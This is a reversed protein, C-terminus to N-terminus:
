QSCPWIHEDFRFPGSTDHVKETEKQGKKTRGEIKGKRKWDFGMFIEMQYTQAFSCFCFFEIRTWFNSESSFNDFCLKSKEEFSRLFKCLNVNENWNLKSKRALIAARCFSFIHIKASFIWFKVKFFKAFFHLFEKVQFRTLIFDSHLCFKM